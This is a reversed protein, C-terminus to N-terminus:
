RQIPGAVAVRLLGRGGEETCDAQTTALTSSVCWVENLLLCWLDRGFMCGKMCLGCQKGGSVDFDQEVLHVYAAAAKLFETLRGKANFAGQKLWICCGEAVLARSFMLHTSSPQLMHQLQLAEVLQLTHFCAPCAFVRM